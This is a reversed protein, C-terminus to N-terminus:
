NNDNEQIKKLQELLGQIEETYYVYPIRNLAWKLAAIQEESPKWKPHEDAWEIGEIYAVDLQGTKYGREKIYENAASIKQEERSKKNKNEKLEPFYKEAVDQSIQGDAIMQRVINITKAKEEM